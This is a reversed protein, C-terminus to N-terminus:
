RDIEVPPVMSGSRYATGRAGTQGSLYDQTFQVQAYGFAFAVMMAARVQEAPTTVSQFELDLTACADHLVKVSYGQDAAARVAADVCMHGM